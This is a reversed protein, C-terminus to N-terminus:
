FSLVFNFSLNCTRRVDKFFSVVVMLLSSRIDVATVNCERVRLIIITFVMALFDLLFTNIGNLSKFDNEVM